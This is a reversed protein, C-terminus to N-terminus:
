PTAAQQKLIALIRESAHGDGEPIIRGEQRTGVLRTKVGLAPAEYFMASSNGIFEDCHFLLNLFDHHPMADHYWTAAHTMCYEHIQVRIAEAGVDPNPLLFIVRKDRPLLPWLDAITTTADRTEPQYSVVAYPERYPRGQKWAGHRIYDLALNGVLHVNTYGRACLRHASPTSMACHLTALRSICDRFGDDYASRTRDGGALHCIPIQLVYASIASLLVELRDGFLLLWEMDGREHSMVIGHEMTLLKIEFFPDAQLCAVLWDLYGADARSGMM